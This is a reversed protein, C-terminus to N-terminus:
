GHQASLGTIPVGSSRTEKTSTHQLGPSRLGFWARIMSRPHPPLLMMHTLHNTFAKLSRCLFILWPFFPTRPKSGATVRKYAHLHPVSFTLSLTLASRSHNSEGLSVWPLQVVSKDFYLQQIISFSKVVVTLFHYSNLFKTLTRCFILCGMKAESQWGFLKPLVKEKAAFKASTLVANFAVNSFNDEKKKMPFVNSQLFNHPSTRNSFPSSFPGNQNEQKGAVSRPLCEMQNWHIVKLFAILRFWNSMSIFHLRPCSYNNWKFDSNEM